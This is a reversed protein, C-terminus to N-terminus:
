VEKKRYFVGGLCLIIICLVALFLYPSKIVFALPWLIAVSLSKLLSNNEILRAFPPSNKYYWNVIEAGFSTQLLIRDRFKRYQNVYPSLPSGFAATAIFCKGIGSVEARDELCGSITPTYSSVATKFAAVTKRRSNLTSAADISNHVGLHEGKYYVRPNSFYAIDSCWVNNATCETSYSM